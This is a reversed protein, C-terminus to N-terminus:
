KKLKEFLEWFRILTTASLRFKLKIMKNVTEKVEKENLISEKYALLLVRLSGIPNLGFAKAVKRALTEDIILEKHGIQRALAITQSEGFGINNLNQIKYALKLYQDNLRIIKIEGKDFYNKLILSDEFKKELGDLVAEKYVEEAVEVRDFLKFIISLKNLKGFIILSSSDVIM